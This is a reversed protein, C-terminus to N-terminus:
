GRRFWFWGVRQQQAGAQRRGVHKAHLQADSWVALRGWSVFLQPRCADANPTLWLVGVMSGSCPM